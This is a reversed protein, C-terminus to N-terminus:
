RSTVSNACISLARGRFMERMPARFSAPENSVARAQVALEGVGHLLFSLSFRVLVQADPVLHGKVDVVEIAVYSLGNRSARISKRDASLRLKRVAGSTKLM